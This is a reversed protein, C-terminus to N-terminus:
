LIHHAIKLFVDKKVNSTSANQKKSDMREGLWVVWRLPRDLICLKKFIPVPSSFHWLGCPSEAGQIVFIYPKTGLIEPFSLFEPTPCLSVKGQFKRNKGSEYEFLLYGVVLFFVRNRISMDVQLSPFYRQNKLSRFYLLSDLIKKWWCQQTKRAQVMTFGMKIASCKEPQM